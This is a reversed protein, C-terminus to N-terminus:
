GSLQGFHCTQCGIPGSLLPAGAGSDLESRLRGEAFERLTCVEVDPTEGARRPLNEGGDALREAHQGFLFAFAYDAPKAVRPVDLTLLALRRLRCEVFFRRNRRM